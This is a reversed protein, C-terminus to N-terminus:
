GFIKNRSSFVNRASRYEPHGFNQNMEPSNKKYLRIRPPFFILVEGFKKIM